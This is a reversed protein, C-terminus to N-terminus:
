AKEQGQQAAKSRRVVDGAQDVQKVLFQSGDEGAELYWISGLGGDLDEVRYIGWGCPKARKMMGSAEAEKLAVRNNGEATPRITTPVTEPGKFDPPKGFIASAVTSRGDSKLAAVVSRIVDDGAQRRDKYTDFIRM